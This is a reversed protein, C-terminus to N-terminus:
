FARFRRKLHEDAKRQCLRRHSVAEVDHQGNELDNLPHNGGDDCFGAQRSAASRRKRLLDDVLDVIHAKPIADGQPRHGQQAAKM